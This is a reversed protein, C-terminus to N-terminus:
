GHWSVIGTVHRHSRDTISTGQPPSAAAFGGLHRWAHLTGVSHSWMTASLGGRMGSRGTGENDGGKRWLARLMRACIHHVTGHKGDWRRAPLHLQLFPFAKLSPPWPSRLLVAEAGLHADTGGMYLARKSKTDRSARPQASATSQPARTQNHGRRRSAAAMHYGCRRRLSDSALSLNDDKHAPMRAGELPVSCAGRDLSTGHQVRGGRRLCQAHSTGSRSHRRTVLSCHIHSPSPMRRPWHAGTRTCRETSSLLPSHVGTCHQRDHLGTRERLRTCWACRLASGMCACSSPTQKCPSQRFEVSFLHSQEAEPTHHPSRSLWPQQQSHQPERLRGDRLQLACAAAPPIPATYGYASDWPACACSWLSQAQQDATAQHLSSTEAPRCGQPMIM